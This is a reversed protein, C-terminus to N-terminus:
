MLLNQKESYEVLHVFTLPFCSEICRFPSQLRMFKEPCSAFVQDATLSLLLCLGFKQAYEKFTDVYTLPFINCYSTLPTFQGIIKIVTATCKDNCPLHTIYRENGQKCSVADCRNLAV